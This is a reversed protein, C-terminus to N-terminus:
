NVVKLVKGSVKVIWLGKGPLTIRHLGAQMNGSFLKQGNLATVEVLAPAPLEACLINGETWIGARGCIAEAGSDGAVEITVFESPASEGRDYLATVCYTHSGPEASEDIFSEGAVSGLMEGDRWVRYGELKLVSGTQGAPTYSVDDVMLMFQDESVCRIAFHKAGEPLNYSYLTWDGPVGTDRGVRVFESIETGDTSYLLEISERYGADFSKAYFSVTQAEGSLEPSIMWDDNQSFLSAMAVAYKTGTHAAFNDPYEETGPWTSDFVMFAMPSYLAEYEVGEIGYTSDEDIDVVTWNGFGDLGGAEYDEFSDTEAALAGGELDPREWHLTVNQRDTAATLGTVAPWAPLDIKLNAEATLNDAPNADGECVLKIAYHTQSGFLPTVEELFEVQMEGYVPVFLDERRGVEQGDRLLVASFGENDDWGNNSVKASLKISDGPKASAPLSISGIRLDCEPQDYIRLNDFVSYYQNGMTTQLAFRVTKGKWDDLPAMMRIWGEPLCNEHSEVTIFGPQGYEEVQLEVTNTGGEINYYYAQIVPYAADAPIEMKGSILRTQDGSWPTFGAVLGNDGDESPVGSTEQCAQWECAGSGSLNQVIWASPTQGNAFSDGWPLQCPKGIPVMPSETVVSEGKATAAWVELYRYEQKADPRQLTLTFSSGSIGEELIHGDDSIGYTIFEPALQKGNVDLAVPSWEVKVKGYTATETLKVWQPALPEAPGVFDSAKVPFGAGQDNTVWASWEHAGGALNEETRSWEEGPTVSYRIPEASDLSINLTLQGELATGATTLTPVTLQLLAKPYGQHDATATFGEVQGPSEVTRGEAIRIDDLHLNHRNAPSCGHWGIYYTGSAAPTVMYHMEEKATKPVLAEYPGMIRETLAEPEPSTGWLMELTEAYKNETWFLFTIDYTKGAEMELAPSILWDDTAIKGGDHSHVFIDGGYWRWTNGDGNADVITFNDKLESETAFDTFFLDEGSVTGPLLVTGLATVALWTHKRIGKM